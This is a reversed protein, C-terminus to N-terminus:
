AQATRAAVTTSRVAVPLHPRSSRTADLFAARLAALREMLPDRVFGGVMAPWSAPCRDALALVRATEEASLRESADLCYELLDREGRRAESNKTPWETLLCWAVWAAGHRDHDCEEADEDCWGDELAKLAPRLVARDLALKELRRCHDMLERAPVILEPPALLELPGIASEVATGHEALQAGRRDHGIGPLRQVTAAFADAARLFGVSAEELARRQGSEQESRARLDTAATAATAAAAQSHAASLTAEAAREGSRRTWWAALFGIPLALVAPVLAGIEAATM